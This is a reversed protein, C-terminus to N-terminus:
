PRVCCKYSLIMNSAKNLLKLIFKDRDHLKSEYYTMYLVMLVVQDLFETEPWAHAFENRSHLISDLKGCFAEITEALSSFEVTIMKM